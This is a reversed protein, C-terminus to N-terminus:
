QRLWLWLKPLKEINLRAGLISATIGGLLGGVAMFVQSIGVFSLDMNLSETVLVPVAIILM